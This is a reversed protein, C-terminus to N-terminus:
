FSTASARREARLSRRLFCLSTFFAPVKLASSRSRIATNFLHPSTCGVEGGVVAGDDAADEDGREPAAAGGVPGAGAELGSALM